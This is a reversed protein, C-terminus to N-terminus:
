LLQRVLWTVAQVQYPAVPQHGRRAIVKTANRYLQLVHNYDRCSITSDARRYGKMPAAGYEAITLARGCAM